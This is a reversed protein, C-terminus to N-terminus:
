QVNKSELSMGSTAETKPAPELYRESLRRLLDADVDLVHEAYAAFSGSRAAIEEFAAALYEPRTMLATRLAAEPLPETFSGNVRDAMTAMRGEVNGVEDSLLYDALIDTPDVGLLRQLVAVAFGTRDKGSACHVLTPGEAEALGGLYLKVLAVITPSFPMRRYLRLLMADMAEADVIGGSRSRPPRADAYGELALRRIPRADKCRSPLTNREEVSRLDVITGIARDDILDLDADTAFRHEGSRFLRGRRLAQGEGAPYGGYDRFNYIAQAPVIRWIIAPRIM